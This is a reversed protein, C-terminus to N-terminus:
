NWILAHVAVLAVGVAMRYAVTHSAMTIVLRDLVACEAVWGPRRMIVAYEQNGIFASVAMVRGIVIFNRSVPVYSNDVCRRDGRVTLLAM